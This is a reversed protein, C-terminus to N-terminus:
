ETEKQNYSANLRVVQSDNVIIGADQMADMVFGSVNDVDSRRMHKPKVDSSPELRIWFEDSDLVIWLAVNDEFRNTIVGMSTLEDSFQEKAAMYEPPMYFTKGRGRPRAKPVARM